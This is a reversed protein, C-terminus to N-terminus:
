PSPRPRRRSVRRGTLRHRLHASRSIFLKAGEPGAGITRRRVDLAIRGGQMAERYRQAWQAKGRPAYRAEAREKLEKLEAIRGRYYDALRPDIFPAELSERLDEIRRDIHNTLVQTANYSNLNLTPSKM